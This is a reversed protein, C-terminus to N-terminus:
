IEYVYGDMAFYYIKKEVGLKLTLLHTFLICNGDMQRGKRNKYSKICSFWLMRLPVSFHDNLRDGRTGPYMSLNSIEAGM